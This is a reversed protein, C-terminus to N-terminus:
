RDAAGVGRAFDFQARVEIVGIAVNRTIPFLPGVILRAGHRTLGARVADVKGDGATNLSRNQHREGAGVM